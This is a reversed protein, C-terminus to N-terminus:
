GWELRLRRDAHREIARAGRLGPARYGMAQIAITTADVCRDYTPVALDAFGSGERGPRQM